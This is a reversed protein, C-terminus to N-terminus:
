IWPFFPLVKVSLIKDKMCSHVRKEPRKKILEPTLFM